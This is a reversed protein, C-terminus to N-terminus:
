ALLFIALFLAIRSSFSNFAEFSKPGPHLNWLYLGM